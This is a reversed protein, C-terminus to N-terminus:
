CQGLKKASEGVGGPKTQEVEHRLLFNADAVEGFHNRRRLGLNGPMKSIKACCTQYGGPAFPLPHVVPQHSGGVGVCRLYQALCDGRESLVRM